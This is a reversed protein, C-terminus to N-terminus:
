LRKAMGVRLLADDSDFGVFVAGSALGHMASLYVRLIRHFAGLYVLDCWLLKTKIKHFTVYVVAIKPYLFVLFVQKDYCSKGGIGQFLHKQECNKFCLPV